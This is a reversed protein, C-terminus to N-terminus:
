SKVPASKVPQALSAPNSLVWMMCRVPGELAATAMFYLRQPVFNKNIQTIRTLRRAFFQERLDRLDRLNKKDNQM